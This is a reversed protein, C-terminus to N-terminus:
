NTGLIQYDKFASAVQLQGSGDQRLYRDRHFFGPQFVPDVEFVTYRITMEVVAESFPQVMRYTASLPRYERNLEMELSKVRPHALELELRFGRGTPASHSSTVLELLTDLPIQFLQSTRTGFVTPNQPQYSIWRQAKNVMILAEPNSLVELSRTVMKSNSGNYWLEITEAPTDARTVEMKAHLSQLDTYREHFTTLIPDPQASANWTILFLVMGYFFYGNRM